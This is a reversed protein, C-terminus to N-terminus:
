KLVGLHFEVVSSPSLNVQELGIRLDVSLALTITKLFLDDNQDRREIYKTSKKLSRAIGKSYKEVEIEKFQAGDNSPILVPVGGKKCSTFLVSFIICLIMRKM